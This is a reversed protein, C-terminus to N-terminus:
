VLGQWPSFMSKEADTFQRNWFILISCFTNHTIYKNALITTDGCCVNKCMNITSYM